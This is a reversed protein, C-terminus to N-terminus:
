ASPAANATWYQVKKFVISALWRPAGGGSLTRAVRFRKCREPAARIPAKEHTRPPRGPINKKPNNLIPSCGDGFQRLRANLLGRVGAHFFSILTAHSLQRWSLHM